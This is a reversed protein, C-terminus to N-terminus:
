YKSAQYTYADNMKRGSKLYHTVYQGCNSGIRNETVEGISILVEYGRTRLRDALEYRVDTRYPDIYSVMRNEDSNSTPNLPTIKLFFIAPDFYELLVDTDIKVEREPAFNLTIKRGGSKCFRNGYDAIKEFSWKKIPILYDRRKIDTSHISFQLQFNNDYRREKIDLLRDFFGDTGHPAVTSLCPMLGPADYKSPLEDLLDLIAMNFSPEGMRAFQIKFKQAPVKGGPYRRRVLFEIQELLEDKSLKGNYFGGADCIPCKVPCGFLTSIILVWKKDRPIPPEVSEVFEVMKGEGMDAVYVIAIDDRGTYSIVKM